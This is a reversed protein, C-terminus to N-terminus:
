RDKQGFMTEWQEQPTQTQWNLVPRVAADMCANDAGGDSVPHGLDQQGPDESVTDKRATWTQVIM